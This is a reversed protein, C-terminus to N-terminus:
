RSLSPHPDAAKWQLHVRSKVFRAAIGVIGAQTSIRELVALAQDRSLQRGYGLARVADDVVEAAREAGISEGLMDGLLRSEFGAPAISALPQM